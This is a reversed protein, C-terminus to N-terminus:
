AAPAVELQEVVPQEAVVEKTAVVEEQAVVAEEAPASKVEEVVEEEGLSSFQVSMRLTKTGLLKKITDVANKHTTVLETIDAQFKGSLDEFAKIAVAVDAQEEPALLVFKEQANNAELWSELSTTENTTYTQTSVLLMLPLFLKKLM